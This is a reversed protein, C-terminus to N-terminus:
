ALSAIIEEAHVFYMNNNSASNVNEAGVKVPNFFFRFFKIDHFISCISNIGSTLDISMSTLTFNQTIDKKPKLM